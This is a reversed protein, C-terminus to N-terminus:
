RLFAVIGFRRIKHRWNLEYCFILLVGGLGKPKGRAGETERKAGM